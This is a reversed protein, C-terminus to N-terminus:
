RESSEEPPVILVPRSAHVLVERSVSGLLTAKLPGRGRSGIVISAAAVEDAVDLITRWVSEGAEEARAEASCGAARASAAGEAAAAHAAAEESKDAAEDEVVAIAALSGAQALRSAVSQWVTLVVLDTPALLTRAVHLGLTSPASGDFCVLTVPRTM